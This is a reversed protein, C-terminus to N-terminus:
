GDTVPPSVPRHVSVRVAATVAVPPRRDTVFRELRREDVHHASPGMRVLAAAEVPALALHFRVTVDSEYRLHGAFAGALREDKDPDVAILELEDVLERLHEQEPTALVVAGGPRLIRHMEAINRPAFVNLVVGAGASAVPLEDWVDCVAAGMREHGRAARRMAHKSLDLALGAWGPRRDLMARLHHGTGAGLDVAYGATEPVAGTAAVIADTLPTFHGAALVADRAAVMAATDASRVHRSSRLLNVYGQRAIDFRHGRGCTVVREGVSVAARCVPCRLLEEVATLM